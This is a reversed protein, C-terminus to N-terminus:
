AVTPRAGSPPIIGEVKKQEFINIKTSCRHIIYVPPVLMVSSLTYTVTSQVLIAHGFGVKVPRNTFPAAEPTAEAVRTTKGVEAEAIRDEDSLTPPGNTGTDVVQENDPGFVLFGVLALLAVLLFLGISTRKRFGNM